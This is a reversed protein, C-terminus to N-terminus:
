FKKAHTRRCSFIFYAVLIMFALSFWQVAYAMHRQPLVSLVVWDRVFGYSQSKDLRVMFPYFDYHTLQNIEAIDIKQIVLPRKQPYLINEGLIFQYENLLKIYGHISQENEISPIDPIAHLDTKKIWGRDILLLKKDGVIRLPTIVEFGMQGHYFQNQILLTLQNLYQGKVVIPQFQLDQEVPNLLAFPLATSHLRQQYLQLLHKKVHYRHLQWIGLGSLLLVFFFFFLFFRLQFNFLYSRQFLHFHFHQDKM